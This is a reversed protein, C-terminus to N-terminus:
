KITFVSFDKEFSISPINNKEFIGFISSGSGTMSAYLAGSDYFKEKIKKLEPYKNFAPEEFDNKLKEKWSFIPQVIIEKVSFNKGPINLQSFAWSTSIHINPHVLIFSYASLDTDIEELIEGRGSAFCPKNIIFFACDSGLQSAYGLLQRTSLNLQFKENLLMLTFAADASGGGLGAGTPIAKHLLINVQPLQPLDKKLLSYAKVCLNDDANGEITLGSTSFTFEDAPIIELVDNIQVPYFVTEINHYGDARKGIINLGLNIKCNPFILM